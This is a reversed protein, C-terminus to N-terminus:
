VLPIYHPIIDLYGDATRFGGRITGLQIFGLKAYLKLAATNNAVVANFQLIRFGKERAMHLSHVVLQEGIREGRHGQRVAYSANAIHGCRGVNNPHLIYLGVIGGDKEAVATFTQEGFFAAAENETMPTEQPFAAGEEVVANWIRMMEPIDNGSFGRISINMMDRNKDM